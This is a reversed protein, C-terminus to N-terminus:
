VDFTLLRQVHAMCEHRALGSVSKKQIEEAKIVGVAPAGLINGMPAAASGSCDADVEM